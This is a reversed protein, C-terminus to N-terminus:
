EWALRCVVSPMQQFPIVEKGILNFIRADSNVDANEAWVWWADAEGM